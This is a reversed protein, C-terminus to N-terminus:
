WSMTIMGKLIADAAKQDTCHEETEEALSFVSVITIEKKVDEQKIPKSQPDCMAITSQHRADPESVYFLLHVTQDFITDRLM